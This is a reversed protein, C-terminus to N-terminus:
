DVYYEDKEAEVLAPQYKKLNEDNTYLSSMTGAELNVYSGFKILSKSVLFELLYDGAIAAVIQNIMLGQPNHLANLVCSEEQAKKKKKKQTKKESILEPHVQSPLPTWGTRGNIVFPNERNKFKRGLLVQGTYEDNGCDLWWVQRRHSALQHTAQNINQRASVNDVCGIILFMEQSSVNYTMASPYKYDHAKINMGWARGYRSALTVAKNAGVEAPCFNQRYCNEMEVHDPDYFKINATIGTKEKLVWLTRILHPALWSGTGGCGVLHVDLSNFEVAFIKRADLIDTSFMM